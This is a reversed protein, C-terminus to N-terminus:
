KMRFRMIGDVNSSIIRGQEELLDLYGIMMIMAPMSFRGEYLRQYLIFFSDIGTKILQYTDEARQYIRKVQSHIVNHVDSFPEYHGPYVTSIDLSLLRDYSYMMQLIGKNREKPNQQSREIVPTPTIKLLMDASLYSGSAQHLFTSQTQSHGPMYLVDWNEGDIELSGESNFMKLREESIAHWVDKVSGMMEKYGGLIVPRVNKEFYGILAPMMISERDAWLEQPRVAWDWMKDSVWVEANSASAVREAMGCHDVHAHTLIIRDIDSFVLGNDKLGRQLAAFSADTDEGCDVLVVEDGKLVFANVSKMGFITPLAIREIRLM